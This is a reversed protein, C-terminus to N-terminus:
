FQERKVMGHNQLASKSVHVDRTHILMVGRKKRDGDKGRRQLLAGGVAAAAAFRFGIANGGFGTHRRTLVERRRRSGWRRARVITNGSSPPHNLSPPLLFFSASSRV